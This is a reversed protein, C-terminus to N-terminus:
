PQAEVPHGYRELVSAASLPGTTFNRHRGLLSRKLFPVDRGALEVGCDLSLNVARDPAFWRAGVTMARAARRALRTEQCIVVDMYRDFALRRPLALAAIRDATAARLQFAYSQVHNEFLSSATFGAFDWPADALNIAPSTFPGFVSDNMVFVNAGPSTAAIHHLAVAYASFDFGGLGKWILADAVDRFERPVTSAEGTAVIALLKGPEAALKALTYRHAATVHGQPLFAFYVSWRSAPVAPVLVKQPPAPRRLAATRFLRSLQVRPAVASAEFTWDRVLHAAGASM